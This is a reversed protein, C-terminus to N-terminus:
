RVSVPYGLFRLGANVNSNRLPYTDPWYNGVLEQISSKSFSVLRGDCRAMREVISGTGHILDKWAERVLEIRNNKPKLFKAPNLPNSMQAHICSIVEKAEPWGIQAVMNPGLLRQVTRVHALKAKMGEHESPSGVDSEFKRAWRELEAARQRDTLGRPAVGGDKYPKSPEDPGHLLYELFEDVELYIPAEPWLRQVSAYASALDAYHKLFPRYDAFIGESGGGGGPDTLDKWLVPLSTAANEDSGPARPAGRLPKLAEIEDLSHKTAKKFWWEDYVEAFEVSVATPLRVGIEYRRTFAWQTLNASSVVALDDALYMKAHLGPLSRVEGKRAFERLSELNLLARDDLDVMLRLDLKDIDLWARGIHKRVTALNGMYPVAIWLRRRAAACMQRIEQALSDGYLVDM